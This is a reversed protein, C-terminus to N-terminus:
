LNQVEPSQDAEKDVYDADPQNNNDGKELQEIEAEKQILIEHLIENPSQAIELQFEEESRVVQNDMIDLEKALALEENREENMSENHQHDNNCPAVNNKVNEQEIVSITTKVIIGRKDKVINWKGLDGVVKGSSLIRAKVKQLLTQQQQNNKNEEMQQAHEEKNRAM